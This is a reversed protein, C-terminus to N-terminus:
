LCRKTAQHNGAAGVGRCPVCCRRDFGSSQKIEAKQPQGDAGILVRLIVKGQEGLRKSIAPYAPPPNNLYAASQSPLTVEETAPRSASTTGVGSSAQATAGADNTLAAGAQVPPTTSNPATAPEQALAPMTRPPTQPQATLPPAALRTPSALKSMRPAIPVAEPTAWEIWTVEPLAPAVSHNQTLWALALAHLALVGGWIGVHQVSRKVM